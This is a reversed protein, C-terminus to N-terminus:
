FDDSYLASGTALTADTGVDDLAVVLNPYSGGRDDYTGHCRACTEGFVAKGAAALEQDIPCPYAPPELSRLYALVDPLHRDIERAEEVNDSCLTSAAMMIRAHDGRGAATYFMAHKKRMHWWAPVDLPVVVDPLEYQPQG